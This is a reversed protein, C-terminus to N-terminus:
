AFSLYIENNKDFLERTIFSLNYYKIRGAFVYGGEGHVVFIRKWLNNKFVRVEKLPYTQLIKIGENGENIVENKIKLWRNESEEDYSFNNWSDWIKKPLIHNFERDFLSNKSTLQVNFLEFMKEQSFDFFLQMEKQNSLFLKEEGFNFFLVKKERSKLPIVVKLNICSYTCNALGDVMSFDFKADKIFYNFYAKNKSTLNIIEILNNKQSFSYYGQPLPLNFELAIQNSNERTNLIELFYNKGNLIFQKAEFIVGNFALKKHNYFPIFDFNIKQNNVKLYEENKAIKFDTKSQYNIDLVSLIREMQPGLEQHLFVFTNDLKSLKQSSIQPKERLILNFKCRKKANFFAEFFVKNLPKKFIFIPYKEDITLAKLLSYDAEGSQLKPSHFKVRNVILNELKKIYEKKKM